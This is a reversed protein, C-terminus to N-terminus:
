KRVASKNAPKTKQLHASGFGAEDGAPGSLDSVICIKASAFCTVIAM